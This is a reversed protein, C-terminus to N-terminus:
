ITTGGNRMDVILVDTADSKEEKKEEKIYTTVDSPTFPEVQEVVERQSPPSSTFVETKKMYVLSYVMTLSLFLVILAWTVIKKEEM